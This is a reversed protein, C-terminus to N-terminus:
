MTDSSTKSSIARVAVSSALSGRSTATHHGGRQRRAGKGDPPDLSKRRRQRRAKTASPPQRRGNRGGQEDGLLQELQHVRDKGHHNEKQVIAAWLKSTAIRSPCMCYEQLGSGQRACNCTWRLLETSLCRVSILHWHRLVLGDIGLGVSQTVRHILQHNKRAAECFYDKSTERAENSKRAIRSLM